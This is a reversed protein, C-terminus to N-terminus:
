PQDVFAVDQMARLREGLLANLAAVPTDVDIGRWRAFFPTDAAAYVHWVIEEDPVRKPGHEDISELVNCCAVFLYFPKSACVVAWGWDEPVEEADPYGCSRLEGALWAALQRGFIGPNTEADEEPEVRFRTSRFWYGSSLTTM